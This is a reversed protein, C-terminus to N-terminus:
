AAKLEEQTHLFELINGRTILGVVGGNAVVPLQNVDSRVLTELAQQASTDPSVTRLKDFPIAVQSLSTFPWRERDVQKLSHTTVLGIQRDGERVLFCRRGTRLLYDDAFARVTLHGDVTLCDKSMLDRVSVGALASTIQIEAKSSGAAEALFWGIFAIWLGGLGAGTFFWFLGLFIFVVAIVQGVGAAIQTARARSNTIRWVISRLIRGGDLPYGPIMNFLALAINIYGLWWFGASVPTLPPGLESNWDGARAAALFILGLIFSTAPGALAMWFESGASSSEGAINSVGGLAFLTISPVSMGRSRAVAAHALEHVLISAFFLVMTIASLSWIVIPGWQPSTLQFRAALSILILVAIILWSYHLGIEIGFLRGIRISPRM